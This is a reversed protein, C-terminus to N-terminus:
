KLRSASVIFAQRQEKERKDKETGREQTGTPVSYVFEMKKRIVGSYDNEILNVIKERM